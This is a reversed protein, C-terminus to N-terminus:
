SAACGSTSRRARGRWLAHQEAGDGPGVDRRRRRERGQGPRLPDARRRVADRRRADTPMNAGEAVVYVGNRLLNAADKGNIENQTASPFACDAKHDWLPNHDAGDPRAAHLDRGQVQGRVGQHPRPAREEAGDRLRAERPRHGGRRLHLRDLRLAHRGQAGLDLLKEVTYQAVNGSGSVLCTKGECRRAARRSCRRRSTSAGYGTAEPRILSGGWNLGKGTLVGTFENRSSSTCARLPLRDRPRRRRHRGRARRHEPRHPPLARDHLTQCFRM